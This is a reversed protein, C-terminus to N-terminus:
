EADEGEDTSEEAEDDVLAGNDRAAGGEEDEDEDLDVEHLVTRPPL